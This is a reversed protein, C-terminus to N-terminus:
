EMEKEFIDVYPSSRKEHLLLFQGMLMIILLSILGLAYFGFVIGDLNQKKISFIYTLFFCGNLILVISLLLDILSKKIVMRIIGICIIVITAVLYLNM